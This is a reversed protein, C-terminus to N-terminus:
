AQNQLLLLGFWAAPDSWNRLAKFGRAEFWNALTDPDFKRSIETQISEGAAFSVNLNLDRILVQQARLSELSMEIQQAEPNYIARHRWLDLKFNAGLKENIHALLNRNFEATVGKRDNYAAEIVGAPKGAHPQRDYGLLLRSDPGMRSKLARFFDDQFAPSFNGITGGLFLFLRERQSPLFALADEYLGALGLVNLYKYERTLQAATETLMRQSVDVPIYTFPQRAMVWEDLLIRTKTSAGSGLEVIEPLENQGTQTLMRLPYAVERLIAAETRTPYYEDLETIAEYLRSGRQDYFYTCPLTKQPKRALGERVERGMRNLQEHSSVPIVCYGNRESKMEKKQSDFSHGLTAYPMM